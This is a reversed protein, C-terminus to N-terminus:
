VVYSCSQKLEVGFFKACNWGLSPIKIKTKSVAAFPPVNAQLIRQRVTGFFLKM